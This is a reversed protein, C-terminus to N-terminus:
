NEYINDKYIYGKKNKYKILVMNFGFIDGNIEIIEVKDGTKLKFINEPYHPQKWVICDKNIIATKM